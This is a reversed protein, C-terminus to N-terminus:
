CVHTMSLLSGGKMNLTKWKKIQIEIIVLHFEDNKLLDDNCQLHISGVNLNNLTPNMNVDCALEDDIDNICEIVVIKDEVMVYVYVVVFGLEV